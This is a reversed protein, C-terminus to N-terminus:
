IRWERMWGEHARSGEKKGCRRWGRREYRMEGSEDGGDDRM